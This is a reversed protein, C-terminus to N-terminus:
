DFRGAKRNSIFEDLTAGFISLEHCKSIKNEQSALSLDAKHVIFVNSFNSSHVSIDFLGTKQIAALHLLDSPTPGSKSSSARGRFDCVKSIHAAIFGTSCLQSMLQAFRPM